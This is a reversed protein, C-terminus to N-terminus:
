NRRRKNQQRGLRLHGALRNGPDKSVLFFHIVARRGCSPVHKIGIHPASLLHKGYGHEDAAQSLNSSHNRRKARSAYPAASKTQPTDRM